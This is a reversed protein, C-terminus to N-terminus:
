YIIFSQNEYRFAKGTLACLNSLVTQADTGALAGTIRVTPLAPDQILIRVDFEEEIERVVDTLETKYFFLKGHIWGPYEAFQLKQPSEPFSGTLCTTAEGATLIVSSDAAATHATVNVRGHTVGVELVTERIRVNFETGLVTVTAPTTTVVFPSGTKRVKFYAEGTLDVYRTADFLRHMVTLTSSHNMIIETSDTLVVVKQEKAGTEYHVTTVRPYLYAALAIICLAALGFAFSPVRRARVPAVFATSQGTHLSRELRQWQAQTDPDVPQASRASTEWLFRNQPSEEEPATRKRRISFGFSLRM